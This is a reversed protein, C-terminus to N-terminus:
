HCNVVLANDGASEPTGPASQCMQVSRMSNQKQQPLEAMINMWNEPSCNTDGYIVHYNPVAAAFDRSDKGM